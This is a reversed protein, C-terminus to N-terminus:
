ITIKLLRKEKNLEFKPEKKIEKAYAKYFALTTNLHKQNKITIEKQM